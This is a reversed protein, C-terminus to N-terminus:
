INKGKKFIKEVKELDELTIKKKKKHDKIALLIIEFLDQKDLNFAFGRLRRFFRHRALLRYYFYFIIFYLKWQFRSLTRELFIFRSRYLNYIFKPNSSRYTSAEKHWVVFGAVYYLKYGNKAVNYSFDWEENWFFYEEHLLGVKNFVEKRILMLAGTVFQIERDNNFQGNDIQNKGYPLVGWRFRRYKGWVISIKQPEHYYYIKGGLIGIKNNKEAIEITQELFSQEVVTDNNLLLTYDYDKKLAYRIGVNNGAAFGLNEGTQILILPYSSTPNLKKSNAKRQEQCKRTVKEELTIDGGREAEECTYYIYPILKKVPPHSLHYLPHSPEPTLVEQKGDAWAKIKEISGNTSGNDIVIVRYNPYTNRFVSELCEITDKWGNWNLIIIAVKPWETINKKKAEILEKTKM